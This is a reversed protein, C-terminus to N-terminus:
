ARRVIKITKIEHKSIPMKITGNQVPIELTENELLDTERADKLVEALRIVVKADKGLTEYFRMIIDDSEEAKKIVALIVNDPQVSVFSYAKPLEGRHSPEILPVLPYNFEYAKRVTLAAKFDSRHPYLAYAIHHEGQDTFETQAAEDVPLGFV